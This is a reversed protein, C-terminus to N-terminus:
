KLLREALPHRADVNARSRARRPSPRSLRPGGAHCRAIESRFPVCRSPRSKNRSRPRIVCCVPPRDPVATPSPPRFRHGSDTAPIQPRFRHVFGTTPIQPRSRHDSDTTPIQPQFRHDSDTTPASTGPPGGEARSTRCDSRIRLAPRAGRGVDSDVHTLTLAPARASAGRRPRRPFPRSVRPGGAHCRAIESRFPVCRSPRSKNRSRPRIVCCVPPRDPVATPSPPRFRHGSDTAPIQPRFRHVFGTTPIQPRSRHDSDTTPIQPQFRHDSDTTPASTGPPGGEARSTRCDSRTRPAPRARPVRAGVLTPTRM